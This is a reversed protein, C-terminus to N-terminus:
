AAARQPISRRYQQRVDSPLCYGRGWITKVEVGFASLKKRMRSVNVDICKAATEPEDKGWYVAAIVVDRTAVERSLLVRFLREESPSLNWEAPLPDDAVLLSQLYAVQEKLLDNEERLQKNARMLADPFLANM